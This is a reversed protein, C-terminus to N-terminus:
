VHCSPMSISYYISVIKSPHSQILCPPHKYLAHYGSVVDILSFRLTKPEENNPLCNEEERRDCIKYLYEQEGARLSSYESETDAQLWSLIMFMDM